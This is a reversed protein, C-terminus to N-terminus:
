FKYIRSHFLFFHAAVCVVVTSYMNKIECYLSCFQGFDLLRMRTERNEIVCPLHPIIENDNRCIISRWCLRVIPFCQCGNLISTYPLGVCNWRRDCITVTINAVNCCGFCCCISRISHDTIFTWRHAMMHESRIIGNGCIPCSGYWVM